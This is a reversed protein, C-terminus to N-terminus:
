LYLEFKECHQKTSKKGDLNPKLQLCSTNRLQVCMHELTHSVLSQKIPRQIHVTKILNHYKEHAKHLCGRNKNETPESQSYFNRTTLPKSIIPKAQKGLLLCVKSSSPGLLTWIKGSENNDILVTENVQFNSMKFRYSRFISRRIKKIQTPRSFLSWFVNTCMCVVTYCPNELRYLM